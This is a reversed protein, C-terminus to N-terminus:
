MLVSSKLQQVTKPTAAVRCEKDLLEKPVGILM